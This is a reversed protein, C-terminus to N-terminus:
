RSSTGDRNPKRVSPWGRSRMSRGTRPNVSSKPLVRRERSAKEDDESAKYALIAAMYFLFENNLDIPEDSIQTLIYANQNKVSEHHSRSLFALIVNNEDEM